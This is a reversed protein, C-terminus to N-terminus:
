KNTKVKPKYVIVKEVLDKEIMLNLWNPDPEIKKKEYVYNWADFYITLLDDLSEIEQETKKKDILYIKNENTFVLSCDGKKFFNGLFVLGNPLFHYQIGNATLERLLPPLFILNNGKKSASHKQETNNYITQNLKELAIDSDIVENTTNSHIKKSLEDLNADSNNMEQNNM